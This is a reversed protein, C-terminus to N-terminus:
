SPGVSIWCSTTARSSRRLSSGCRQDRRTSGIPPADPQTTTVSPGPGTKSLCVAPRRGVGAPPGRDRNDTLSTSAGTAGSRFFSVLRAAVRRRWLTPLAGPIAEHLRASRGSSELDRSTERAAFGTRGAIEFRGRRSAISEPKPTEDTDAEFDPAGLPRRGCRGSPAGFRYFPSSVEQTCTGHWSPFAGSGKPKQRPREGPDVFDTVLIGLIQGLSM